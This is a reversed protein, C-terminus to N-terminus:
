QAVRHIQHISLKRLYIQSEAHHMTLMLLSCANDVRQVLHRLM